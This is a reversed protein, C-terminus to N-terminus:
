TFFLEYNQKEMQVLTEEGHGPYITTEEPLAILKNVSKKLEDKDSYSHEYSGVAGQFLTDGTFVVSDYTFYFTCSGPTHGPTHLVELRWDGIEMNGNKLDAFRKPLIVHPEYGLFHKATQGLRKILFMDEPHIYLPMKTQYLAELSLQLEGAAMVHDFHGHTALIGDITVNRRQIEELLFDASDAPDIILAHNDENILIYCNAQLEGLPFSLIHM